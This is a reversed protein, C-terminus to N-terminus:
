ADTTDGISEKFYEVYLYAINELKKCENITNKKDSNTKISNEM